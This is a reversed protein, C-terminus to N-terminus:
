GCGNGSSKMDKATKVASISKFQYIWMLYKMYFRDISCPGFGPVIADM